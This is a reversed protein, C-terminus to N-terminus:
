SAVLRTLEPIPAGILIGLQLDVLTDKSAELEECLELLDEIEEEVEKEELESNILDGISLSLKSLSGGTFKNMKAIFNKCELSNWRLIRWRDKIVSFRREEKGQSVVSIPFPITFSVERLDETLEQLLLAGELVVQSLPSQNKSYRCESSDPKAHVSFKGIKGESAACLEEILHEYKRSTAEM